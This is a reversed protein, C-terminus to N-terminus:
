KNRKANRQNVGSMFTDWNADVAADPMNIKQKYADKAEEKVAVDNNHQLNSLELQAKRAVTLAQARDNSLTTLQTQQAVYAVQLADYRTAAKKGAIAAGLLYAAAFVSVTVTLYLLIARRNIQQNNSM